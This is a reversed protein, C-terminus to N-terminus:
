KNNKKLLKLAEPTIYKYQKDRLEKKYKMYDYKNVVKNKNSLHNSFPKKTYSNKTSLIRTYSPTRSINNELMKNNKLYIIKQIKRQYSLNKHNKDNLLNIKKTNSDNNSENNKIRNRLYLPLQYTKPKNYQQLKPLKNNNKFKYPNYSNNIRPINYKKNDLKPLKNVRINDYEIVKLDNYNIDNDINNRELVLKQEVLINDKEKIEQKLM